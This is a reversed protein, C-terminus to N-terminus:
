SVRTADDYHDNGIEVSLWGNRIDRQDYSWIVRSNFSDCHRLTLSFYRRSEIKNVERITLNLQLFFFSSFLFPIYFLLSFLKICRLRQISIM